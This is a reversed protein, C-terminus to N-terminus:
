RGPLVYNLVAIFHCLSGILVCVHFMAHNFPIRKISYLVAGFTYSLGGAFLWRLGGGSLNEALPELAFVIMWGTAVYLATSLHRFHGTYFFKLCAGGLALAWVVGFIIWGIRGELVLLTFPTYTGAILFFISAHDLVRMRARLDPRSVSHYATSSAYLVILSIGFIGAAAIDAADGYRNAKWLLWPLGAVAFLLGLGHSTVNAREEAASYVKPQASVNM